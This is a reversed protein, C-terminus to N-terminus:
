KHAIPVSPQGSNQTLRAAAQEPMGEAFIRTLGAMIPDAAGCPIVEVVRAGLVNVFSQVERRLGEELTLLLNIHLTISLSGSTAETEVSGPVRSQAVREERREQKELRDPEGM